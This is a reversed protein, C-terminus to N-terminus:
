PPCPIWAAYWGAPPGSKSSSCCMGQCSAGCSSSVTYTAGQYTGSVCCIGPGQSCQSYAAAGNLTLIAVILKLKKM